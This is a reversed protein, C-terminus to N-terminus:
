VTKARQFPPIFNICVSSFFGSLPPNTKYLWHHGWPLYSTCCTKKRIYINSLLILKGEPLIWNTVLTNITEAQSFCPKFRNFKHREKSM